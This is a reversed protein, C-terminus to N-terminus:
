GGAGEGGRTGRWPRGHSSGTGGRGQEVVMEPLNPVEGVREPWDRGKGEDSGPIEGREWRSASRRQMEHWPPLARARNTELDDHRRRGDKEQEGERQKGEDKGERFGRETKEKKLFCCCGGGEKSSGHGGCGTGGRRWRSGSWREWADGGDAAPLTRPFGLVEMGM